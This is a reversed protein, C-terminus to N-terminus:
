RRAENLGNMGLKSTGDYCYCVGTSRSQPDTNLESLAYLRNGRRQSDPVLVLRARQGFSKDDSIM